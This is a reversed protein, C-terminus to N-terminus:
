GQLDEPRGNMMTLCSCYDWIRPSPASHHHMLMIRHAGRKTKTKLISTFYNNGSAKYM